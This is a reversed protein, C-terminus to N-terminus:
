VTLKTNHRSTSDNSGSVSELVEIKQRKTRNIDSHHTDDAHEEPEPSVNSTDLETDLFAAFDDSKSSNMPADDAVSMKFLFSRLDLDLPHVQLDKDEEEWSSVSQREFAPQLGKKEPNQFMAHAAIQSAYLESPMVTAALYLTPLFIWYVVKTYHNRNELSHYM